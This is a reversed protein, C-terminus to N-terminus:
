AARVSNAAAAIRLARDALKAREMPTIKGDSVAQVYEATFGATECGLDDLDSEDTESTEVHKGFPEFILSTLGDPLFPSLRALGFAPMATGHAWSNITTEPIGSLAALRKPSLAHDRKALRFIDCQIEVLHQTNVSCNSM